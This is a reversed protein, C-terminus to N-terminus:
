LIPSGPALAPLTCALCRFRMRNKAADSLSSATIPSPPLTSFSLELRHCENSLAAISQHIENPALERPPHGSQLYTYTCCCFTSLFRSCDFCMVCAWGFCVLLSSLSLASFISTNYMITSQVGVQYLLYLLM